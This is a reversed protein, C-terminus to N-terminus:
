YGQYFCIKFHGLITKGDTPMKDTETQFSLLKFILHNGKHTLIYSVKRLHGSDLIYMNAM